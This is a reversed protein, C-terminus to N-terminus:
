FCPDVFCLLWFLVMFFWLVFVWVGGVFLVGGGASVTKYELGSPLYL